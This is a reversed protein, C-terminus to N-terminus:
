KGEIYTVDDKSHLFCEKERLAQSEGEKPWYYHTEELTGDLIKM